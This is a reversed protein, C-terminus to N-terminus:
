LYEDEIFSEEDKEEQQKAKHERVFELALERSDVMALRDWEFLNYGMTMWDVAWKGAVSRRIRYTGHRPMGLFDLVKRALSRRDRYVKGM